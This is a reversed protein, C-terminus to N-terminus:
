KQLHQHIGIIIVRECKLCFSYVFKKKNSQIATCFTYPQTASQSQIGNYQRQSMFGRSKSANIIIASVGSAQWGKGQVNQGTARTSLM